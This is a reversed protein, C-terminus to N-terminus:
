FRDKNLFAQKGLVNYKWTLIPYITILLTFENLMQKNLVYSCFFLKLSHIGTFKDLAHFLDNAISKDQDRFVDTLEEPTIFSDGNVDYVDFQCEDAM